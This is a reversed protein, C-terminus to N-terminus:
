SFTPLKQFTELVSSVLTLLLLLSSKDYKIQYSYTPKRSIAVCCLKGETIYIESTVKPILQFVTRTNNRGKGFRQLMTIYCPPTLAHLGRLMPTLLKSILSSYGLEPSAVRFDRATHPEKCNQAWGSSELTIRTNASIQLPRSSRTDLDTTNLRRKARTDGSTVERWIKVGLIIIYLRYDADLIFLNCLSYDFL